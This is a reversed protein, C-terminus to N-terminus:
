GKIIVKGFNDLKQDHKELTKEFRDLNYKMNESTSKSQVVLQAVVLKTNSFERQQADFKSKLDYLEKELYAKQVEISNGIHTMRKESQEDRTKLVFQYIAWILALGSIIPSIFQIM